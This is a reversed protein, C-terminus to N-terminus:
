SSVTRPIQGILAEAQGFVSEPSLNRLCEFEIPCADAMCTVCGADGQLYRSREGLPSWRKASLGKENRGFISIVKAGSAAALHVPGSDNSIFVAARRLVAALCCLATKETLDVAEPGLEAAMSANAARQRGDGILVIKLGLRARMLKALAAYYEGPWCKSRCSAGTHLAAYAEGPALGESALLAEAAKEDEPFVDIQPLHESPRFGAAQVVELANRSEHQLGEKRLDMVTRTLFFRGSGTAYGTRRKVGALWCLLHSRLTPHFVVAEDFRMRRLQLVLRWYGRVLRHRGKRGYDYVMTEDVEPSREAIARTQPRALFTIRAQPEAARVASVAPLTLLLDGIRDLRVMLIKKSPPGTEGRILRLARKLAAEVSIEDLCERGYRSQAKGCPSCFENRFLAGAPTTQPGYLEPDTPGFFSLVKVGFHDAAHLPASDNTILLAATRILEVSEAWTKCGAVNRSPRRMRAQIRECLERESEDGIFIVERGTRDILRDALQVYRGECWRKTDSRSGPAILIPSAAGAERVGLMGSRRHAQVPIGLRALVDLYADRKHRRRVSPGSFVRRKGLLGFASRRLDVALDYRKRRLDRWFDWRKRWSMKKDYRIIRRLGPRAEFVRCARPGALVDVASTPFHARLAELVPLSLLADGPNSFSVLLVTRVGSADIKKKFGPLTM